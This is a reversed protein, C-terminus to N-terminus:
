PRKNNEASVKILTQTKSTKDQYRVTLYYSGAPFGSLDIQEINGKLNNRTKVLKGTQNFVEIQIVQALVAADLELNFINPSPNPFVKVTTPSTQLEQTRTTPANYFAIGTPSPQFTTSTLELQIDLGGLDCSYIKGNTIDSFFLRNRADNFEIRYPSGSPFQGNLLIVNSGDLSARSLRGNFTDGWYFVGKEVDLLIFSLNSIGTNVLTEANTGNLDARMVKDAARDTWYMKGATLDLQIDHPEQIIGGTILDEVNTGDLNARQIKNTGLDVWYMKQNVKDLTIGRPELLDSDVLVTRVENVLDYSEITNTGRDTWYLTSSEKDIILSGPNTIDESLLLQSDEGANFKYKFIQGSHYDAWFMFDQAQTQLTFSLLFCLLVYIKKM